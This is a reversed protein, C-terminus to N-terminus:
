HDGKVDPPFIKESDHPCSAKATEVDEGLSVYSDDSDLHESRVPTTERSQRQRKHRLGHRKTVPRVSQLDSENGSLHATTATIAAIAAQYGM